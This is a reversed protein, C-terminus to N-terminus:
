PILVIKGYAGSAMVAQHAQAAESLPLRQGVVPRLTGNELGAGLAAHISAQERDTANFLMVGLIDAERSMADRPNIEVTGRNGIVVVRGREALVKLDEGLNVNALMELIVDIGRGETLALAQKLYGPAHHDLLHHAGQAAVRERGKPSGGTALIVMGAARALQVAALGVGGTAGHVLVVEGPVARARQFLARYATAYPVGIAAGQEFTVQAPLPHVQAETCLAAEAYAGTLTGSTYVRDGVKFRHIGEGAAEVIGAADSGPTYPVKLDPNSGSRRYTDVPNVGIAKIRVRLQQPGPRLDPLMELQLVEPGGFQHVRIAKM